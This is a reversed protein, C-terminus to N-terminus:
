FFCARGSPQNLLTELDALPTKICAIVQHRLRVRIGFQVCSCCSQGRTPISNALPGRWRLPRSLTSPCSQSRSFPLWGPLEPPGERVAASLATEASNQLLGPACFKARQLVGLLGCRITSAEGRMDLVFSGSCAVRPLTCPLHCAGNQVCGVGRQEALTPQAERLAPFTVETALHLSLIHNSIRSSAEHLRHHAGHDSNEPPLM